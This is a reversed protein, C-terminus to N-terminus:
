TGDRDRRERAKADPTESPTKDLDHDRFVGVPLVPRPTPVRATPIEDEDPESVVDSPRAHERPLRHSGTAERPLRVRSGTLPDDPEEAAVSARKERLTRRSAGLMERALGAAVSALIMALERQEVYTLAASAVVLGLILLGTEVARQAAPKDRGTVLDLLTM